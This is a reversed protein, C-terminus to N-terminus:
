FEMVLLTGIRALEKAKPHFMSKWMRACTNKEMKLYGGYM